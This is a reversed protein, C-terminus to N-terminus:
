VKSVLATSIALILDPATCHATSWCGYRCPYSDTSERHSYRVLALTRPPPWVTSVPGDNMSALLTALTAWYAATPLRQIEGPPRGGPSGGTRPPAGGGGGGGRPHGGPVPPSGGGRVGGPSPSGGGTGGRVGPPKGGGPVRPGPPGGPPAERGRGEQFSFTKMVWVASAGTAGGGLASSRCARLDVRARSSARGSAPAIAPAMTM